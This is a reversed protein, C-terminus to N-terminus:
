GAAAIEGATGKLECACNPCFKDTEVVPQKCQPCAPHLNTKCNPCFNYRGGVTAACNPCAYPLPERMFFYLLFGIGLYAPSLVLILLLWLGAHMGRRKADRYVYGLLFLFSTIFIAFLTIVGAISLSAMVPNDRFVWPWLQSGMRAGQSHLYGRNLNVTIGIGLAIVYLVGCAMRLWYPVVRLEDRFRTRERKRRFRILRMREQFSSSVRNQYDAM